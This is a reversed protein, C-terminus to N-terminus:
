SVVVEIVCRVVVGYFLINLSLLSCLSCFYDLIILKRTSEEDKIHRSIFILLIFTRQAIFFSSIAITKAFDKFYM